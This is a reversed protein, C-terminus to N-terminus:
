EDDATVRATFLPRARVCTDGRAVFRTIRVARRQGVCYVARACSREWETRAGESSDLLVVHAARELSLGVVCSRQSVILVAGPSARFQSIARGQAISGSKLLLVPGGAEADTLVATSRLLTFVRRAALDCRLLIVVRERDSRLEVVLRVFAAFKSGFERRLDPQGSAYPHSADIALVVRQGDFALRCMPCASMSRMACSECFSHGCPLVALLRADDPADTLCVACELSRAGSALVDDM